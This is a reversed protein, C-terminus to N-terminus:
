KLYPGAKMEKNIGEKAIVYHKSYNEFKLYRTFKFNKLDIM